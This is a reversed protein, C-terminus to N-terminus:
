DQAQLGWVRRMEEFRKEALHPNLREVALMFWRTSSDPQGLAIDCLGRFYAPLFDRTFHEAAIALPERAEEYRGSDCLASGVLLAVDPDKRMEEPLRLFQEAAAQPNGSELYALGLAAATDEPDSGEKEAEQLAAIAKEWECVSFAEEARLRWRAARGRLVTIPWLIFYRVASAFHLWLGAPGQEPAGEDRTLQEALPRAEERHQWLLREALTLLRAEVGEYGYLLHAQLLKAGEEMQGMALLSLGLYAQAMRNMPDLRVAAAFAKRAEEFHGADYQIRGVALMPAHSRPALEAARKAARVAEGARGATALARARQLHARADDPFIALVEDYAKAAEGALGRRLLRVGRWYSREARWWKGLSWTMGWAKQPGPRM